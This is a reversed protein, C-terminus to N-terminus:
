PENTLEPDNLWFVRLQEPPVRPSQEEMIIKTQRPDFNRSFRDRLHNVRRQTQSVELHIEKLKAQQSRYYPLLEIVASLAATILVGNVLLKIIVEVAVLRHTSKCGHRRSKRNSYRSRPPKM